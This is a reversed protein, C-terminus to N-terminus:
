RVNSIGRRGPHLLPSINNKTSLFNYSKNMEQIQVNTAGKPITFMIDGNNRGAFYLFVSSTFVFSHKDTGTQWVCMSTYNHTLTTAMIKVNYMGRLTLGNIEKELVMVGWDEAQEILSGGGTPFFIDLCSAILSHPARNSNRGQYYFNKFELIRYFLM